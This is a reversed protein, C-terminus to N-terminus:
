VVEMLNQMCKKRTCRLTPALSNNSTTPLKIIENSLGKSEWSSISETNGIKKNYKNMKQFALYNQSSDEEFHNKGKFYSSDFIQLKKLQNKVLM